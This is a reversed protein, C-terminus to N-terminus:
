GADGERIRQSVSRLRSMLGNIEEGLAATRAQDSRSADAEEDAAAEDTEGEAAHPSFARRARGMLTSFTPAGEETRPNQIQGVLAAVEDPDSIEALCNMQGGSDGVVIVRRGVRLLMVQQRPALPTRSLLQVARTSRGAGAPLFLKRGGWRLAFILGVVAALAAAVRPGDIAQGPAKDPGSAADSGASPRHILEQDLKSHNIQTSLAPAQESNAMAGSASGSASAHAPPALPAPAVRPAPSKAPPAPPLVVPAQGALAVGGLAAVILGASLMIPRRRKM